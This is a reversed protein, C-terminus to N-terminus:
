PTLYCVTLLLLKSPYVYYIAIQRNLLYNSESAGLRMGVCNGRCGRCAELFTSTSLGDRFFKASGTRSRGSSPAGFDCSIAQTAVGEQWKSADGEGAIMALPM